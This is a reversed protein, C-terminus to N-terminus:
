RQEPAPGIPAAPVPPVGGGGGAGPAPAAPPPPPPPLEAKGDLAFVFMMPANDVKADNAGAANAAMIVVSLDRWRQLGTLVAGPIATVVGAATTAAALIWATRPEAGFLAAGLVLGFAAVSAVAAIRWTWTVLGRAEARRGAGLSEGVTRMLAIPLGLGLLNQTSAVVFAIFSQRGLGSPGLFRAGAISVALTFLQPVLNSAASWLGGRAVSAGTTAAAESVGADPAPEPLATESSM